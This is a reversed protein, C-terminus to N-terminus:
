LLRLFEEETLGPQKLIRHKLFSPPVDKNHCQFRLASKRARRTFFAPMAAKKITFM